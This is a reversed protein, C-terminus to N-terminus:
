QFAGLDAWESFHEAIAEKSSVPHHTIRGDQWSVGHALDEAFVLYIPTHRASPIRLEWFTMNESVGVMAGMAAAALAIAKAKAPTWKALARISKRM